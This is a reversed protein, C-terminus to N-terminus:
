FHNFEKLYYKMLLELGNHVNIISNRFDVDNSATILTGFGSNFCLQINKELDIKKM